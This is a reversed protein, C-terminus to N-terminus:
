LNIMIITILIVKFVAIAKMLAGLNNTVSFEITHLECQASYCAISFWGLAVVAVVSAAVTTVIVKITQSHGLFFIMINNLYLKTVSCTGQPPPKSMETVLVAVTTKGSQATIMFCYNSINGTLNLVEVAISDGLGEGSYVGVHNECNNGHTVNVTCSKIGNTTTDLFNCVFAQRTHDFEINVLTDQSGTVAIFLVDHMCHMLEIPLAGLLM